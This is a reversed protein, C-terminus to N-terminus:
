ARPRHPRLLDLLSRDRESFDRRPRNMAIGIVMPGPLGFAIQDEAGLRGYIQGYLELSHFERASLFDSIKYTRGDGNMQVSILPHQHAYRSLAEGAGEFVQEPHTMVLAPGGGLDVENYGVLDAPVLRLLGPQIGSRFEELSEFSNAEGVFELAASMDAASLRAM